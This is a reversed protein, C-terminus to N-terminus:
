AITLLWDSNSIGYAIATAGAKGPPEEKPNATHAGCKPGILRQTIGHLSGWRFLRPSNPMWDM